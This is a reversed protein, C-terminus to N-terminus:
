AELLYRQCKAAEHPCLLKSLDVDTIKATCEAAPCLCTQLM